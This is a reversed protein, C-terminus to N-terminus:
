PDRVVDPGLLDFVEYITRGDVVEGLCDMCYAQKAFHHECHSCVIRECVSCKFGHGRCVIRECRACEHQECLEVIKECSDCEVLYMIDRERWHECCYEVALMSYIHECLEVPLHMQYYFFEIIWKHSLFM